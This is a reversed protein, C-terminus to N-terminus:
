RPLTHESGAEIIVLKDYGTTNYPPRLLYWLPNRGPLTSLSALNTRAAESRDDEPWVYIDAHHVEVRSYPGLVRAVGKATSQFHVELLCSHKMM